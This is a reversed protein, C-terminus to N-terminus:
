IIPKRKPNAVMESEKKTPYFPKKEECWEGFFITGHIGNISSKTMRNSWMRKFIDKLVTGDIRDFLDDEFEVDTDNEFILQHDADTIGFIDYTCNIAEDIVQINKM